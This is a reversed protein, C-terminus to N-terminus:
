WDVLLLFEKPVDHGDKILQVVMAEVECSNNHSDWGELQMWEDFTPKEDSFDGIYDPYRQRFDEEAARGEESNEYEKNHLWQDVDIHEYTYHGNVEILGRVCSYKKGYVKEVFANFDSCDIVIGDYHKLKM